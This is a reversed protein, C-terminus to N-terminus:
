SRSWLPSKAQAVVVQNPQQSLARGGNRHSGTEEGNLPTSEASSQNPKFGKSPPLSSNRSTKKVQKQKLKEVESRLTQLEQWLGQILADKQAHSLEDLPPLEKM